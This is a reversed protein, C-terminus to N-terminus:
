QYASRKKFLEDRATMQSYSPNKIKVRGNQLGYPAHKCKMVIGELDLRCVERFLATGCVDFHSVYLLGPGSQILGRLRRKREILPLARLEHGDAQTSFWCSRRM